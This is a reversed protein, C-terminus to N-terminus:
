IQSFFGALEGGVLFILESEEVEGAGVQLGRSGVLNAEGELIEIVLRRILGLSVEVFSVEPGGVAADLRDDVGCFCDPTM